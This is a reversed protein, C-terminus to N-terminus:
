LLFFSLVFINLLLMISLCKNSLLLARYIELGRLQKNVGSLVINMNIVRDITRASKGSCRSTQRMRLSYIATDSIYSM